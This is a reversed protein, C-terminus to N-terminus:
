HYPLSRLSNSRFPYTFEPGENDEPTTLSDVIVSASPTVTTHDTSTTTSTVTPTSTTVAPKTSVTPTPTIHSSVATAKRNRYVLVGPNIFGKNEQATKTCKAVADELRVQDTIFHMKSLQMKIDYKRRCSVRCGAISCSYKVGFKTHKEEWHRLFKARSAFRSAGCDDIPCQMQGGPNFYFEVRDEHSNNGNKEKIVSNALELESQNVPQDQTLQEMDADLEAEDYDLINFDDM